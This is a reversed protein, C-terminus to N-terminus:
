VLLRPGTGTQASMLPRAPSLRTDVPRRRTRRRDAPPEPRARGGVGARHDFKSIRVCPWKPYAFHVPLDDTKCRIPTFLRVFIAADRPRDASRLSSHSARHATPTGGGAANRRGLLAVVFILFASTDSGTEWRRSGTECRSSSGTRRAVMRIMATRSTMPPPTARTMLRAPLPVVVAADCARVDPGVL